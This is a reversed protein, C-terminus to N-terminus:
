LGLRNPRRWLNQFGHSSTPEGGAFTVKGFRSGLIRALSVSEQRTLHGAPLIDKRVETWRAFCYRCRMNCQICVHYNVTLDRLNM